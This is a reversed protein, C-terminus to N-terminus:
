LPFPQSRRWQVYEDRYFISFTWRAAKSGQAAHFQDIEAHFAKRRAAKQRPDMELDWAMWAAFVAEM